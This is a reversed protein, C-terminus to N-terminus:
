WNFAPVTIFFKAQKDYSFNQVIDSLFRTDNDVHELVDFMTIFQYSKHPLSEFESYFKITNNATSFSDIQEQTLNVDLADIEIQGLEKCVNEITFGDGCGVDLVRDM